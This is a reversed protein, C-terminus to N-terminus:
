FRADDVKGSAACRAILTDIVDDLDQEPDVGTELCLRLVANSMREAIALAELHDPDASKTLFVAFRLFRAISGTLTKWFQEKAEVPTFTPTPSRTPESACAAGIIALLALLGLIFYRRLLM